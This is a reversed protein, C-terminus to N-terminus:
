GGAHFTTARREIVRMRHSGPLVQDHSPQVSVAPHVDHAGGDPETDRLFGYPTVKAAQLFTAPQLADM